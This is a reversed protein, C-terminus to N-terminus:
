TQENWWRKIVEEKTCFWGYGPEYVMRSRHRDRAGCAQCRPTDAYYESFIRKLMARIM